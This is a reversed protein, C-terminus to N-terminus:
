GLYAARVIPDASVEDPTGEGIVEGLNLVTIRDCVAMVFPIDHEVLLVSTEGNDSLGRVIEGFRHAEQEELGSTPEDLVVVRPDDVIARALELLRVKGISLNGALQDRLDAIGCRELTAMAKARREADRKRRPPFSFLDAVIGGGGGHWDLAAVVNEEVTLWGFPQQRQFTRRIGHRSRWVSPKDTIDVGDLYVHGSTPARVGTIMDFFTTKGAGNPGILGRVQGRPVSISVDSVARVGGFRVCLESTRLVPESSGAGTPSVSGATATSM